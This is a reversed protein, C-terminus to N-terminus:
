AAGATPPRPSPSISRSARRVGRGAVRAMRDAVFPKQAAFSLVMVGGDALLSRAHELSEQTYVYHDLRANTMATTTHSDLLGFVIVDYRDKCTAFFSRADDNVLTVRPSDYPKEPHYRRGLDIIQPDIDVATVQEVGHRLAGAADNGTGAGVLLVRQSPEPHLLFPIDYQSLGQMAPPYKEPDSAVRREDLDIMAQYGTNNVLVVYDGIEPLDPKTDRLALKQYPSWRVDMADPERGAFWSLVVIGVTLAM